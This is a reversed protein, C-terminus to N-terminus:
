KRSVTEEACEPFIAKVLSLASCEVVRIDAGTKDKMDEISMDDLTVDQGEKLIIEPVLVMKGAYKTGLKSIIDQGTLLGTVSVNGGFFENEVPIVHLSLGKVAHLRDAVANLIPLALMGTILYVEKEEVQVPLLPEVETFGDLFLRVLGIGNEVQFFDDYYASGPFDRGASLYFEDALYVFGTDFERRFRHQFKEVLHILEQAEEGTFARIEELGRRHATLGVPVIGISRVSPYYLALENISEVLVQGDNIGPCLVIQTHVEIGADYLRQLDRKINGARPNNFIRARLKDQTCHVSVYLPSLRMKTIKEWDKEELNNLTIFNGFLFSYRYDDDKIYLTKRMKAPLQNIFCFICNNNCRKIDGFVLDEFIFGLDEDYDKEVEVTWLQQDTKKIELVISSEQSYFEYDLIDNIENGDISLLIDGEGIGIEEAISNERVGKVLLGM